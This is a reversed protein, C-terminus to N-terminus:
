NGVLGLVVPLDVVDRAGTKQFCVGLMCFYGQLLDAGSAPSYPSLLAQQIFSYHLGSIIKAHELKRSLPFLYKM